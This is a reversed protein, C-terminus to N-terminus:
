FSTSIKRRVTTEKGARSRATVVIEGTEPTIDITGEFKGEEDVVLPQNNVKVTADAATSGSVYVMAKEIVISERPNDITLKPPNVFEVYQYTLYGSVILVVALVGLAFTLKPGWTFKEKIDPKPNIPLAKPPYDRRLFAILKNDDVDLVHGISRVFGAVVPYNPLKDWKQKELAELFNRKIKTERELDTLTLGHNKRVEKIVQGFTKM